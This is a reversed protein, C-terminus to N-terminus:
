LVDSIDTGILSLEQFYEHSLLKRELGFYYKINM